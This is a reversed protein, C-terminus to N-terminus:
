FDKKEPMWKHSKHFNEADMEPERWESQLGASNGIGRGNLFNPLSRLLNMKQQKQAYEQDFFEQKLKKWINKAWERGEIQSTVAVYALTRPQNWKKDDSWHLGNSIPRCM